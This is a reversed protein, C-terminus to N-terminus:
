RKQRAKSIAAGMARDVARRTRREGRPIYVFSAFLANYLRFELPTLLSFDPEPPPLQAIYAARLADRRARATGKNGVFRPLDDSWCSREIYQDVADDQTGELLIELRAINQADDSLILEWMRDAYHAGIDKM